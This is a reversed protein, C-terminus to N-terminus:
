LRSAMTDYPIGEELDREYTTSLATILPRHYPISASLRKWGHGSAM